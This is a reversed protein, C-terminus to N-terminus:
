QKKSEPKKSDTNKANAPKKQTAEDPESEADDTRAGGPWTQVAAPAPGTIVGTLTTDWRILQWQKSGIEGGIGSLMGPAASLIKVDLMLWVWGNADVDEPRVDFTAEDAGSRDRWALVTEGSPNSVVKGGKCQGRRLSIDFGVGRLDMSVVFKKADLKGLGDPPGFGVLWTNGQTTEQWLGTVADFPLPPMGAEQVRVFGPDIRVETGPAAPTTAVTTRLLTQERRQTADPATAGDTVPADVFGALQHQLQQRLGSAASPPIGKSSRMLLQTRLKSLDDAIMSGAAEWSGTPNRAALKLEQKGPAINPTPIISSGWMLRPAEITSPLGSDVNLTAGDPGFTVKADLKPASSLLSRVTWVANLKGDSSSINHVTLPFMSIRPQQTGLAVLPQAVATEGVNLTLADNKQGFFTLTEQQRGVGNDLDVTAIRAMMLPQDSGRLKGLLLVAAALAVGVGVCAVFAMPRRKAGSIILVVAVLATYLGAISAATKWPPAKAGVIHPLLGAISNDPRAASSNVGSAGGALSPSQAPTEPIALAAPDNFAPREPGILAKWFEAAKESSEVLANIPVGATAIRGFGLTRYSAVAGRENTATVVAGPRAIADSLMLPRRAQITGFEKTTLATIERADIVDAPLYPGIWSGGIEATPRAVILTAGGRVHELLAARQTSDLGDLSSSDVIVLRAADYAMPRRPAAHAGINSGTFTYPMAKTLLDGLATMDYLDDDGFNDAIQLVLVGSLGTPERGDNISGSDARGLMEERRIENGGVGLWRLTGVPPTEDPNESSEPPRFTALLEFSARANPPVRVQRELVYKADGGEVPLAVRGQIEKDTRNTLDVNVPVWRGVPYIAGTRISGNLQADSQAVAVQACFILAALCCAIAILRQYM